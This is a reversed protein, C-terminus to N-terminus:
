GWAREVWWINLSRPTVWCLIRTTDPGGFRSHSPPHTPPWGVNQFESPKWVNRSIKQPDTECTDQTTNLRMLISQLSLGPLWITNQADFDLIATFDSVCSVLVLSEPLELQINLTTMGGHKSWFNNIKGKRPRVEFMCGGGEWPDSAM